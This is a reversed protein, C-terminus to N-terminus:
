WCAAPALIALPPRMGLTQPAGAAPQAGFDVGRGVRQAIGHPKEETRPLTVVDGLRM